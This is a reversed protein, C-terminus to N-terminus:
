PDTNRWLEFAKSSFYLFSDDANLSPTPNYNTKVMMSLFYFYTRFIKLLKILPNLNQTKKVHFEELFGWKTCKLILGTLYM